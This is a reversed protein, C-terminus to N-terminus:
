RSGEICRVFSILRRMAVQDVVVTDTAEKPDHHNATLFFASGDFSIYVGDGLHEAPNNPM